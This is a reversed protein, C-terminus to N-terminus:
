NKGTRLYKRPSPIIDPRSVLGILWNTTVASRKSSRSSVHHLPYRCLLRFTGAYRYSTLHLCLALWLSHLTSVTVRWPCIDATVYGVRLPKLVPSGVEVLVTCWVKREDQVDNESMRYMMKAWGTCWKREGQVDNESVRYMMKAWGTCWKREDQVDNESMRYMMKAWGTCWKKAWGTCWERQPDTAYGLTQGYLLVIEFLIRQFGEVIGSHKYLPNDCEDFYLWLEQFQFWCCICSIYLRSVHCTQQVVKAM